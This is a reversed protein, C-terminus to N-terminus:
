LSNHVFGPCCMARPSFPVSGSFDGQQQHAPALDADAKPLQVVSVAFALLPLGRPRVGIARWFSRDAAQDPLYPHLPMLACFMDGTQWCQLRVPRPHAIVGLGGRCAVVHRLASDSM